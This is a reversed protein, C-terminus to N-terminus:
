GPALLAPDIELTVGIGREHVLAIRGPCRQDLHPPGEIHIQLATDLPPAAGQLRVLAMGHRLTRSWDRRLAGETRYRLSLTPPTSDPDFTVDPGGEAAGGVIGDLDTSPGAALLVDRVASRAHGAGTPPGGEPRPPRPLGLDSPLQSAVQSDLARDADETDRLTPAKGSALQEYWEQLLAQDARRMRRIRVLCRNLDDERREAREIQGLGQVVGDFGVLDLQFEVQEGPQYNGDTQIGMLAARIRLLTGFHIGQESRLSIGAFVKLTM